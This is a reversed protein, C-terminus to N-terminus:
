AKVVLQHVSFNLKLHTKLSTHHHLTLIDSTLTVAESKRLVVQQSLLDQVFIREWWSVGCFVLVRSDFVKVLSLYSTQLEKMQM